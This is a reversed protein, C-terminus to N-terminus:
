RVEFDESRYHTWDVNAINDKIKSIKPYEKKNCILYFSLTAEQDTIPIYVRDEYLHFRPITLSTRFTFLSSQKQLIEYLELDDQVIFHSDPMNNVCVEHWYGTNSYELFNNGNLENFTIEKKSSIPQDSTTSINLVEQCMKFCVVDDKLIPYDLIIATYYHDNLGKILKEADSMTEYRFPTDPYQRKMTYRFAWLPAPACSGILMNMNLNYQNKVKTQLKDVDNLIKKGDDVIIKGYENLVLRNNIRDFIEMGLEKELSKLSRTLGSQSIFLEDAAKLMTGCEAIKIIYRLQRLEM